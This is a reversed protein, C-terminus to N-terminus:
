CGKIGKNNCRYSVREKRLNETWGGERIFKERLSEIQRRLLFENQNCLTIMMNAFSEPDNPSTPANLTTPTVWVVRFDRFFRVREDDKGWIELKNTRLYDKYDEKLEVLSARAVGLLKMYSKLSEEECGEAINQKGSRGAQVMQDKTRSFKNIYKDCFENNLDYIVTSLMYTTLYEYKPRM